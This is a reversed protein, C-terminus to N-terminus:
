NFVHITGAAIGLQETELATRLLEAWLGPDHAEEPVNLTKRMTETLTNRLFPRALLENGCASSMLLQHVLM